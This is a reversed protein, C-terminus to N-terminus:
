QSYLSKVKKLRSFICLLEAQLVFCYFVVRRLISITNNQGGYQPAKPTLALLRYLKGSNVQRVVFAVTDRWTSNPSSLMCYIYPFMLNLRSNSSFNIISTTNHIYRQMSQWLVQKLLMCKGPVQKCPM